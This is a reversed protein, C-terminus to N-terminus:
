HLVSCSRSNLRGTIVRPPVRSDSGLAAFPRTANKALGRYRVKDFGWLRKLAGFLHEVRTRVRSKARNVMRDLEKIVSGKRVRRNSLDQAKPTQSRILEQQAAYACEGYSQEEQGHLLQVLPHKDHVNATTVVASHALGTKCDVSIPLKM